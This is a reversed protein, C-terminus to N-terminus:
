PRRLAAATVVLGEAILWRGHFTSLRVGNVIPNRGLMRAKFTGSHPHIAVVSDDFDLVVETLPYWAKYISEKVAFLLRDWRIDPRCASLAALQKREEPITVRELVTSHRLPAHPEADIGLAAVDAARAVAAARYGACHTLSGVVGSPWLPAGHPDRLIAVPPIGLRELAQRACARCTGFERRRGAAAGTILKEEAPFLPAPLPPDTFTEATIIPTPLLSGVM